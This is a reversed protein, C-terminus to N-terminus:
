TKDVSAFRFCTKEEQEFVVRRYFECTYCRRSCPRQPREQNVPSHSVMWCARGGGIGENLGDFKMYKSVQCEGLVTVMLGGKQRGCKKFEWCNLKQIM